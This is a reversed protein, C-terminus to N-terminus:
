GVRLTGMRAQLRAILENTRPGTARITAAVLDSPTIYGKGDRDFGANQSYYSAPLGQTLNYSPDDAHALLAPLFNAVYFRAVSDLQGRHPAYYKEAWDLQQSVPLARYNALMPDSDIDYGLGRATSPMMQFLGSADGSPNHATTKNDSENAWVRLPITPDTLVMDNAFALLRDLDADTWDSTRTV